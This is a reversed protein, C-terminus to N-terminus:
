GTSNLCIYSISINLMVIGQGNQLGFGSKWSTFNFENYLELDIPRIPNIETITIFMEETSNCILIIRTQWQFYDGITSVGEPVPQLTCNLENSCIYIYELLILDNFEYYISDYGIPEEIDDSYQYDDDTIVQDQSENINSIGGIGAGLIILGIIIAMVKTWNKKKPIIKTSKIYKPTSIPDSKIIKAKTPKNLDIWFDDDGKLWDYDYEDDDLVTEQEIKKEPEPFIPIEYKPTSIPKVKKKKEKKILIVEFGCIECINTRGYMRNKCEPCKKM